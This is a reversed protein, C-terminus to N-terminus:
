RIRTWIGISLAPIRICIGTLDLTFESGRIMNDHISGSGSGQCDLLQIVMLILSSCSGSSYHQSIIDPYLYKDYYFTSESGSGFVVGLFPSM